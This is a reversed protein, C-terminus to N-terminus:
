CGIPPEDRLSIAAAPSPLGSPVASWPYEQRTTLSHITTSALRYDLGDHQPTM